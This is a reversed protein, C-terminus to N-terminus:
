KERGFFTGETDTADLRATAAEQRRRSHFSLSRLMLGLPVARTFRLARLWRRPSERCFGLSSSSEPHTPRQFCACLGLFLRPEAAPSRPASSCPALSRLALLTAAPPGSSGDSETQLLSDDFRRFRQHELSVGLNTSQVSPRSHAHFRRPVLQPTKM